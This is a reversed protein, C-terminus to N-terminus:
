ENEKKLSALYMEKGKRNTKDMIEQTMYIEGLYALMVLVEVTNKSFSCIFCREDTDFHSKIFGSGKFKKGMEKVFIPAYTDLLGGLAVDTLGAQRAIIWFLSYYWNAILEQESEEDIRFPIHITGYKESTKENWEMSLNCMGLRVREKLYPGIMKEVDEEKVKVEVDRKFLDMTKGLLEEINEGLFLM